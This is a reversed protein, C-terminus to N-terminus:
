RYTPATNTRNITVLTAAVAGTRRVAAASTPATAAAPMAPFRSASREGIVNQFLSDRVWSM